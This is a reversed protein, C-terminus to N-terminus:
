SDAAHEHPDSLGGMLRRLALRSREFVAPDRRIQFVAHTHALIAYLEFATQRPDHTIGSDRTTAREIATELLEIENEVAAALADRVAGPQSAFEVASVILFCGGPFVRREFFNLWRNLLAGLGGEPEGSASRRAVQADFVDVAHQITALQLQEKSGFHAYLGSKSMGVASSLRGMTLRDLGELSALQGAGTLIAALTQQGQRSRKPRRAEGRSHGQKRM